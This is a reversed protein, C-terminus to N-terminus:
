SPGETVYYATVEGDMGKLDLPGTSTLSYSGDLHRATMESVLIRGPECEPELRSALNVTPGIVTYDSRYSTGFNGVVVEGTNIGIRLQLPYEENVEPVTEQLDRALNVSRRVQEDPELNIPAGFVIMIADGIFKDITAEYEQALDSMHTLYENLLEGTRQAGVKGSLSTFGVIDAFMVTVTRREPERNLMLQGRSAREVLSEPLYRRLVDQTIYRHLKLSQNMGYNTVFFSLLLGISVVGITMAGNSPDTYFFHERPIPQDLFPSPTIFGSLEYIGFVAYLGGGLLMAFLAIYYDFNVRYVVVVAVAFLVGHNILTGFGYISLQNPALEGFLCFYTLLRLLTERSSPVLLILLNAVVYSGRIVLWGLVLLNAVGPSHSTSPLRSMGLGSPIFLFPVVILLRVWAATVLPDIDVPEAGLPTFFERLFNGKGLGAPGSEANAM